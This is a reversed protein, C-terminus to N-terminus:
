QKGTTNRGSRALQWTEHRRIVRTKGILEVEQDEEGERTGEREGDGDDVHKM